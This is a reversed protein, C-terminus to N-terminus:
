PITSVYARCQAPLSLKELLYAMNYYVGDYKPLIAMGKKYQEMAGQLDGSSEALLGLNQNAEFNDPNLQLVHVFTSKAQEIEGNEAENIGKILLANVEEPDFDSKAKRKM